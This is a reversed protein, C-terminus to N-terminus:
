RSSGTESPVAAYRGSGDADGRAQTPTMGFRRRFSRSFHSLDSFGSEAAVDGIRRQLWHPDRLLILARQLRTELVHYSFTRGTGKLLLHVYRPTIGLRIAVTTASFGLDASRDEIERLVAARRTARIRHRRDPPTGSGLNTRDPSCADM